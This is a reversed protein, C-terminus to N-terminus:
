FGLRYDITSTVYGKKAFANCLKLIDPSTRSGFTFSGGFALIILPRRSLTDGDPEYINMFLEQYTGDFKYNGGYKINLISKVPFIDDVFRGPQCQAKVPQPRFYFVCGSLTFFVWFIGYKM